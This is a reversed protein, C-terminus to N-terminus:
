HHIYNNIQLLLTVLYLNPGHNSNSISGTASIASYSDKSAKLLAADVKSQLESESNASVIILKQRM